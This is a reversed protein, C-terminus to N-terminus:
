KMLYITKQTISNLQTEIFKYVSIENLGLKSISDGRVYANECSIQIIFIKLQFAKEITQLFIKDCKSNEVYNRLKDIHDNSFGQLNYNIKENCLFKLLIFLCREINIRERYGFNSSKGGLSENTDEIYKAISGFNTQFNIQPM